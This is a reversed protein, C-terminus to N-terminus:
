TSPLSHDTRDDRRDAIALALIGTRIADVMGENRRLEAALASDGQQAVDLASQAGDGLTPIDDMTPEEHGLVRTVLGALDSNFEPYGDIGKGLDPFPVTLWEQYLSRLEALRDDRLM